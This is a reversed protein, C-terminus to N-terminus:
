APRPRRTRAGLWWCFRVWPAGFVWFAAMTIVLVAIPDTGPAPPQLVLHLTPEV